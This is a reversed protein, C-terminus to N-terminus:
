KQYIAPQIYRLPHAIGNLAESHGILLYGEPELWSALTNVVREQTPKDFYIMVNRCWIMSFTTPHSYPQVLNVSQFDIADKLGPKVRCLGESKGHGCLFYRHKQEPSIGSLRDSPYTGSKAKQLIRSSIDTAVIRFDPVGAELCAIALSYPEEGSSCAASWLRVPKQRARPSALFKELFQFHAIERFFSTFNTTLLDVMEVFDQSGASSTVHDLYGSFTGFGLERVRSSLRASVMDEKGERLDFGFKQYALQQLRQFDSPKLTPATATRSALEAANPMPQGDALRM